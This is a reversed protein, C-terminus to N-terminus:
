GREETVVFHMAIDRPEVILDDFLQNEYCIGVLVCDDRVSALLRDYYGQGNGLRAGSRSFAVGPVVALDIEEPHVQRDSENWREAPPELIRYKGVTLENLDQLQWLGLSPQGDQQTCYPVVIRKGTQIADPLHWRTRLESRCDVYWLVTSANRYGDLRILREIAARSAEEKNAEANRADYARRRQAAKLESVDPM